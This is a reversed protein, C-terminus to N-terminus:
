MFARISGVRRFPSMTTTRDAYVLTHPPPILCLGTSRQRRTVNDAQKPCAPATHLTVPTNRRRQGRGDALLGVPQTGIM